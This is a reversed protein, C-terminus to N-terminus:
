ACRDIFGFRLTRAIIRTDLALSWNEIYYLDHRVRREMKDLTDTEGRLGNVQAWGTIGPKVTHRDLYRDIREAYHENLAIPHPRPGVISMEDRLVNVLQPLEDFSTWRLLRGVRTVRPDDCTVQCCEGEPPDCVEVRLTRFKVLSFVQGNLGHRAQRYLVPGHSDLKIGLAILLLLPSLLVLGALALVIDMTRKSAIALGAAAPFEASLRTRVPDHIAQSEAVSM